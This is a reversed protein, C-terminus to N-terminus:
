VANRRPVEKGCKSCFRDGARLPNGCQTCFGAAGAASQQARRRRWLFAAAVAAILACAVAPILYTLPDTSGPVASDSPPPSDSVAPLTGQAGAATAGLQEKSTRADSKTYRITVPLAKGAPVAGMDKTWYIMGDNGPASDLRPTTEFNNEVWGISASRM